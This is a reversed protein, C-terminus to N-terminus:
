ERCSACTPKATNCARSTRPRKPPSIAVRIAPVDHGAAALEAALRTKYHFGAHDSAIAIRM